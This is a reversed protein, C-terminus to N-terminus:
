QLLSGLLAHAPRQSEARNVLMKRAELKKQEWASDAGVGASIVCVTSRQFVSFVSIKEILRHKEANM